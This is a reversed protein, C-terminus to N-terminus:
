DVELVIGDDSVVLETGEDDLVLVIVDEEYVLEIDPVDVEMMVSEVAYSGGSSGGAYIGLGFAVISM